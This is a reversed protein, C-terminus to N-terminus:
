SGNRDLGGMEAGTKRTTEKREAKGGFAQVIKEGRVHTGCARCVENEKNGLTYSGQNEVAEDRKPGFIRRLV